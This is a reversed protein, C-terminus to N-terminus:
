DEGVKVLSVNGNARKKFAFYGIQLNETKINPTNSFSNAFYQLLEGNQYIYLGDNKLELTFPSSSSGLEVVINNSEDTTVRMGAQRTEVEQTIAGTLEDIQEKIVEDYFTTTYEEATQIIESTRQTLDDTKTILGSIQNKNHDVEFRVNSLEKKVGGAIEYNSLMMTQTPAKINSKIRTMTEYSLITSSFTTGDTNTITITDNLDLFFDDVVNTMEFPIISRGIIFPAITEIISERILEVFPNDKIKWEVGETGYTVDNDYGENGLVLMTVPGFTNEKTLSERKAKNITVDTAVPTKIQIKGDRTILAIGGGIEAVRSIVETNTINSPFNPRQTFEYTALNFTTSELELGTNTCIEQVIELTTHPSSYDLTSNYVTDLLQRKDYGKFTITKATKNTTIDEDNIAKFTGMLVWEVADDIKLGRYVTIWKNNLSLTDNEDYISFECTKSPFGGIFTDNSHSIKPVSMLVDDLYETGDIVIKSKPERSTSDNIYTKYNDSIAYM